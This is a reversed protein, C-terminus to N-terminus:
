KNIHQCAESPDRFSRFRATPINHRSMFEKSFEKSAEIQAAKASPGFCPIGLGPILPLFVPIVPFLAYLEWLSPQLNEPKYWLM